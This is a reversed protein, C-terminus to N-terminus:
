LGLGGVSRVTAAGQRGGERGAGKRNRCASAPDSQNGDPAISRSVRLRTPSPGIPM